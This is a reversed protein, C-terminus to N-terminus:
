ESRVLGEVLHRDLKMSVFYLQEWTGRDLGDDPTIEKIVEVAVGIVEDSEFFVWMPRSVLTDTTEFHVGLNELAKKPQTKM